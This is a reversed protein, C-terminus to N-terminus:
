QNGEAEKVAVFVARPGSNGVTSSVTSSIEDLRRAAMDLDGESVINYREFVSRTKHGTMKMAVREPIGARVLNRVATRRFDHPIRGPIGAAKCARKWTRRFEKIPKGKRNFVYPCIIGKKKLADAKAKQTGLLARLEATFPFERGEDNKTTGPELRVRGAQFDVQPWQLTEVESPIRWGTIYAFRLMPEVDNSFHKCISDFQEREFFGTRVNNEKLMPIYPKMAIRGAQSALSFARKIAALERNITANEAGEEQRRDVYKRIEVTTIASARAEGFFPLIHDEFRTELDEISRKANVRYDNVVDAALESFKMKGMKPTVPIGKAIDGEKGALFRRAEVLSTKETSERFQKGDRYYSVWYIDGDIKQRTKKDKWTRKYISGM